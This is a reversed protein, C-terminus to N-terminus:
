AREQPAPAASERPHTELTGFMWDYLLTITAYNGRHMDLHHADHKMAIWDLTRWPAGDLDIRCHNVQNLQTYIVTTIVITAVHFPAQAALAMGTTVVYFLAIGLFIEWPHLLHSDISSVRSRAQHHVAHVRRFYGQGHFLFRHMLYYFFDYIMLILFVDLLIRWLPQAQTSVIFPLVAFFFTLNVALGIRQSSKVRHHYRDAKNRWKDRNDANNAARTRAIAPIRFVLAQGAVVSAIICGVTILAAIGDYHLNAM